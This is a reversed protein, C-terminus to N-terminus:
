RSFYLAQPTHRTVADWEEQGLLPRLYNLLREDECPLTAFRDYMVHPWNSGWVMRGRAFPRLAHLTDDIRHAQDTDLLRAASALSLKMWTRGQEMLRRVADWSAEHREYNSPINGLHTLVKRSRLAMFEPLRRVLEDPKVMLEMVWDRASLRADLSKLEDAGLRAGYISNVRVGRVGARDLADLEADQVQPGVTAIGRGAEGLQQLASLLCENNGGYVAPAVVVVRRINLRDAFERYLDCPAHLGPREGTSSVANEDFVHMHTDCLGQSLAEGTM